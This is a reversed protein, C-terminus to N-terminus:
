THQIIQKCHKCKQKTEITQTRQLGCPERLRGRFWHQQHKTHHPQTQKMQQQKAKLDNLWTQRSSEKAKENSAINSERKSTKRKSAHTSAQKKNNQNRGTKVTITRM